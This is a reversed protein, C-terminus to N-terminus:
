PTRRLLARVKERAAELEAIESAQHERMWALTRESQLLMARAETIGRSHAAVQRRHWDIERSLDRIDRRLEDYLSLAYGNPPRPTDTTM